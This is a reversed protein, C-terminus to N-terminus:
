TSVFSNNSFNKFNNAKFIGFENNKNVCIGIAYTNIIKINFKYYLLIQYHTKDRYNLSNVIIDYFM